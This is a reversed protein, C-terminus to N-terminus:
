RSSNGSGPGAAALVNRHLLLCTVMGVAAAVLVVAALVVAVLGGGWGRGTGAAPSESELSEPVFGPQNREWKIREIRETFRRKQRDRPREFRRRARCQLICVVATNETHM